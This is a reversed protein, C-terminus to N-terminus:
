FAEGITLYLGSSKHGFGYDARINLGENNIRVRLGAGYATKIADARFLKEADGLMGASGFVVGTLRKWIHVRLETQFLTMNQDRFRGEYYGRMRKTGGLLSMGNFPAIGGTISVVYNFAAIARSGLKQYFSVDAVYRNYCFDSGIGQGHGLYSFDAVLGKSPYFVNDRTDYFLGLGAGALRGGQGGPVTGSALLGGPEVSVIQYNEFEYRLGAYLHPQIRRLANLRIRPFNVEYNERPVEHQGVGFFNYNYRYYGAEGYVYYMNQDYFVQFPLFLLIQRNQTYAALLMVNSPRPKDPASGAPRLQQNAKNILAYDRKFRFTASAAVGYAFRTEPTYYLIPLPFISFPKIASDPPAILATLLLYVTLM